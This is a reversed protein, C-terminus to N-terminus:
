YETNIFSPPIIWGTSTYASNAVYINDLKMILYEAHIFM